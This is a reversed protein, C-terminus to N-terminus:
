EMQFNIPLNYQVNVPQGSQRGPKWRPMASVVRVAEEDAGFGIGKLVKTQSIYGEKNVVFQVFVRGQVNAKQAAEPYKLNNGLYEGLKEMGGPFEPQQEVVTFIEGIAQARKQADATATQPQDREAQTCLTLLGALPLVLAYALLAHRNSAPKQLM